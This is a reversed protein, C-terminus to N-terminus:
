LRIATVGHSALIDIDAQNFSYRPDANDNIDPHWPAGKYVVNTGRLIHSRGLEDIFLTGKAAVIKSPKSQSPLNIAQVSAVLVAGLCGLILAPLM